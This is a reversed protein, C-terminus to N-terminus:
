SVKSDAIKEHNGEKTSKYKELPTIFQNEIEKHVTKVMQGYLRLGTAFLIVFILLSLKWDYWYCILGFCTYQMVDAMLALFKLQRWRAPKTIVNRM